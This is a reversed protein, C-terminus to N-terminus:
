LEAELTRRVFEADNVDPCRGAADAINCATSTVVFRTLDGTGQPQCKVVVSFGSLSTGAPMMFMTEAACAGNRTRRFIGWELGARAAQYARAGLLDLNASGQQSTYIGVMAVGLGALVVLLFIATVIGVGAERRRIRLIHK